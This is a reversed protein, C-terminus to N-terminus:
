NKRNKIRDDSKVPGGQYKKNEMDQSNEVVQANFKNQYSQNKNEKLKPGVFGKKGGKKKGCKVM